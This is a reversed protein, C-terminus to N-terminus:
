YFKMKKKGNHYIADSTLQSKIWSSEDANEFQGPNSARVIIGIRIFYTLRYFEIQKVVNKFLMRDSASSIVTYHKGDVM